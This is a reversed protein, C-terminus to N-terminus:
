NSKEKKNHPLSNLYNLFYINKKCLSKNRSKRKIKKKMTM